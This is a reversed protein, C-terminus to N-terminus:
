RPAADKCCRFGQEYGYDEEKHFGVTPRCRGRMPGWWGGKLGSREPSKRGPRVVWENINGNLDHVGFPSVCAPMSGAPVRQDLRELEAKCKPHKMCREYRYLSLERQRFPRDINCRTPDREYGYTYPLMEEGECAFNFEDETCLRKGVGECMKVAERWSVLLAPLEGKRNPWEYRDVCYRMPTRKKSLCVTPQKYELCRESVSTTGEVEGYPTSRRAQDKVFEKHHKLCVQDVLPCYDGDVLVMDDPCGESSGPLGGDLSAADPSGGDSSGPSPEPTVDGPTALESSAAADSLAAAADDRPAPEADAAASADAPGSPAAADTAAHERRDCALAAAALGGCLFM